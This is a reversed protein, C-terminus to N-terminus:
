SKKAGDEENLGGFLGSFAKGNLKMMPMDFMQGSGISKNKRTLLDVIGNYAVESKKM